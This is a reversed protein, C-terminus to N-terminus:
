LSVLMLKNAEKVAAEDAALHALFSGSDLRTGFEMEEMSVADSFFHLSIIM